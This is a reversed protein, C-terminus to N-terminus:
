PMPLASGLIGNTDLSTSVGPPREGVVPMEVESSAFPTPSDSPNRSRMSTAGRKRLGVDDAQVVNGRCSAASTTALTTPAPKSPPRDNRAETGFAGDQQVEDRLNRSM